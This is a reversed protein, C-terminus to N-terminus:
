RQPSKVSASALHHSRSQAHDRQRPVFTARQRWDAHGRWHDFARWDPFRDRGCGTIVPSLGTYIRLLEALNEKTGRRRYLPVINALFDRKQAETWDARLGLAVWGALWPM